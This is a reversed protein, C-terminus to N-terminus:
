FLGEITEAFIILASGIVGLTFELFTNFKVPRLGDHFEMDAKRHKLQIRDFAAWILAVGVLILIKAIM